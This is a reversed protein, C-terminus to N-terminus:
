AAGKLSTDADKIVFRAKLRAVESALGALKVSDLVADFDRDIVVTFRDSRVTRALRSSVRFQDLPIIGRLPPEYWHIAPDDASDAMPFIGEGISGRLGKESNADTDSISGTQYAYRPYYGQGVSEYMFLGNSATGVVHTIGESRFKLIANQVNQSQTDLEYSYSIRDAIKYGAFKMTYPSASVMDVNKFVVNVDTNDRPAFPNLEGRIRALGHIKKFLHHRQV